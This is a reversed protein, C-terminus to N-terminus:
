QWREPKKLVFGDSKIVETPFQCEVLKKRGIVMSGRASYALENNSRKPPFAVFVRKDSFLNHIIKIPPVLDSDGSILMAVDFKNQFADTLMYSAINVDTMKENYNSWVNGCRKCEIPRKEYKGFYINIGTTLLAELFTNQRKQKEPDTNIRSTFYNVGVLEQEPKLLSRVLENINLWKCYDLGAEVLGFYLNFGDIFAVVREKKPLISANTM